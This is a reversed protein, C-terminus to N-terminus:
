KGAYAIWRGAFIIGVWLLLAVLTILKGPQFLATAPGTAAAGIATSGTNVGPRTSVAARALKGIRSQYVLLLTAVCVLLVMKLQFAPSALSRRPEAAILLAGTVLLVPLALWIVRLFQTAVRTLPQDVSLLGFQRLALALAAAIVAGICLIHITQLAPVIWEVNQLIQSFPTQQLWACFDSLWHPM